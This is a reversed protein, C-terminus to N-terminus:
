EPGKRRLVLRISVYPFVFFLLVCVKTIAIGCYHIVDVEHSPLGFLKGQSERMLGPALMYLAFWIFILLFGMVASRLLVKAVTDLLETTEKGFSM